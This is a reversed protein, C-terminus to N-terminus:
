QLKATLRFRTLASEGSGSKEVSSITAEAFSDLKELNSAFQTLIINSDRGGDRVFGDIAIRKAVSDITCNDFFLDKDNTMSLECLIRAVPLESGRIGQIFKGLEDSKAKINRIESLVNLQLQANDLHRQYASVSAKAFIYSVLLLLSAVFVVWRLSAMQFKEIKESRFERPLLNINNEWDIILGFTAYSQALAQPDLGPSAIDKDINLSSIRQVNLSSEGSLFKDINPIIAAKGGILVREVKGGQYQTDYYAFSRKIEQGLKELDPRLMALVQNGEAPIGQEFLVKNIEEPTLQVRGADTVLTGSLSEKLKNITVPLERYFTFKNNKYVCIYCRDDQMDVIGLPQDNEQKIYKHVIRTYGWPLLSVSLCVLGLQKLMLVQERIEQQPIAVCIVDLMKSNDNQTIENIVSFDFAANSLDFPADPKLKLKIAERLEAQPIAPIEIRKSFLSKIGPKLIVNHHSINNERIFSRLSELIVSEKNEVPLETIKIAKIKPEPKLKVDLLKLNAGIDVIILADAKKNFLHKVDEIKMNKNYWM